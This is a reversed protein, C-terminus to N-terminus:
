LRIFSQHLTFFAVAVAVKAMAPSQSGKQSVARARVATAARFKVVNMFSENGINISGVISDVISDETASIIDVLGGAKETRLAGEVVM